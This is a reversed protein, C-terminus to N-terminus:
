WFYHFPFIIGKTHFRPIENRFYNLYQYFSDLHCFAKFGSDILFNNFFNTSRFSVLNISNNRFKLSPNLLDFPNSTVLSFENHDDSIHCSWFTTQGAIGPSSVTTLFGHAIVILLFAFNRILLM